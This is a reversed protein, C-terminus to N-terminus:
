KQAALVKARAERRALLDADKKWAQRALLAQKRRENMKEAKTTM